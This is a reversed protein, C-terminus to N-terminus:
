FFSDIILLSVSGNSILFETGRCDLMFNCIGRSSLRLLWAVPSSTATVM